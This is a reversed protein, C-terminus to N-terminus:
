LLPFYKERIVRLHHIQHGCLVFGLALVSIEVKYCVGSRMLMEDSFGKFMAINAKRLLIYEELLDKVTKVSLNTNAAFLNEDFGPLVTKDNRALRMARYSQVRETDIMHQLIDKITWKGPAYTKDGIAELEKINITEIIKLNKELSLVIEEDEAQHIYVEFFPPMPYIDSKKM